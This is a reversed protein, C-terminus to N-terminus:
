RRKEWEAVMAEAYEFAARATKAPDAVVNVVLAQMAATAFKDRMDRKDMEGIIESIKRRDTDLQSMIGM